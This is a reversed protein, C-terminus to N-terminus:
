SQQMAPVVTTAHIGENHLAILTQWYPWLRFWTVTLPLPKAFVIDQFSAWVVDTLAMPSGTHLWQRKKTTKM